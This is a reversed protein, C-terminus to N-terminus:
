PISSYDPVPDAGKTIPFSTEAYSPPQSGVTSTHEMPISNKLQEKEDTFMQYMSYICLWFYIHIAAVIILFLFGKSYSDVLKVIFSICDLGLWIAIM